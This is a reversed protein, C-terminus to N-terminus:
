LQLCRRHSNCHGGSQQRLVQPVTLSAEAGHAKARHTAPRASARNHLKDAKSIRVLREVHQTRTRECGRDRGTEDGHKTERCKTGNRFSIRERWRRISAMARPSKGSNTLVEPSQMQRVLFYSYCIVSATSTTSCARPFAKATKPGLVNGFGLLLANLVLVITMCAAYVGTGATGSMLALLWHVLYCQLTTLAMGALVWRGFRWHERVAQRLLGLRISFSRRMAVLGSVSGVGAGLGLALFATVANLHGAVFLLVIGAVQLGSVVCDIALATGMRLHAFAFRRAFERLLMLPAFAAVAFLVTNVRGQLGVLWLLAAVIGLALCAFTALILQQSLACGAFGDQDSKARRRWQNTYPISILAMQANFLFVVITFGLAYAGLEEAGCWRGLLVTILFPVASVVCQDALSLVSERRAVGGSRRIRRLTNFLISSTSRFRFM